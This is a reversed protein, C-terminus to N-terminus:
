GASSELRQQVEDASLDETQQSVIWQIGFPDRLRGQRMGYPQDGTPFVVTAGARELAAGVADADAVELTFLAGAAPDYEDADKISLTSAGVRFEAYVVKGGPGAHRVGPEAGLARRYFDLAREAGDVVLKPTVTIENM